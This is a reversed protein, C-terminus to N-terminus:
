WIMDGAISIGLTESGDASDVSFFYLSSTFRTLVSLTRLKDSIDSSEFGACLLQHSLPANRKLLTFRQTM